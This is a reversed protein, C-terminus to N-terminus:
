QSPQTFQVVGNVFLNGTWNVLIDELVTGWNSYSKCLILSGRFIVKEDLSVIIELSQIIFLMNIHLIPLRGEISSAIPNHQWVLLKLSIM